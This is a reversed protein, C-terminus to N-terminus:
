FASASADRVDNQHLCAGGASMWGILCGYLLGPINNRLQIGMYLGQDNGNM